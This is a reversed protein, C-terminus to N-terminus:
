RWVVQAPAARVTHGGLDVAVRVMAVAVAVAVAQVM